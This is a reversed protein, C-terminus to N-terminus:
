NKNESNKNKNKYFLEYDKISKEIYEDLCDSIYEEGKSDIELMQQKTKPFKEFRHKVPEFIDWLKSCTKNTIFSALKACCVEFLKTYGLYNLFNLLTLMDNFDFEQLKDYLWRDNLLEGFKNEVPTDKLNPFKNNQYYNLTQTIFQLYKSDINFQLESLEMQTDSLMQNFLIINKILTIRDVSFKDNTKSILIINVDTDLGYNTAQKYELENQTDDQPKDEIIIIDNENFQIEFLLNLKYIDEGNLFNNVVKITNNNIFKGNCSGDGALIRDWDFNGDFNIIVNSLDSM